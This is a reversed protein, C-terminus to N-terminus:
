EITVKDKEVSVFPGNKCEIVKTDDELIDYSHGGEFCVLLDGATLIDTHIIKDNNDFITAKIKGVIVIVCEQTMSAKRPNYIHKHAKLHKNKQYWWTGVQCFMDNPTLFNLEEKWDEKKHIIAFLKGGKIINM